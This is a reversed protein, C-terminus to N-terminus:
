TLAFALSIAAFMWAAVVLDFAVKLGAAALSSAVWGRGYVRRVAVALYVLGAVAMAVGLPRSGVAQEPLLRDLVMLLLFFASWHLAFVVHLGQDARRHLLRLLVAFLLVSGLLLPPLFGSAVNEFRERYVELSVGQAALRAIRESTIGAGLKVTNLSSVVQHTRTEFTIFPRYANVLFFVAAALLYLQAPETHRVRRGAMYENTLFGPRFLLDRLSRFAKGDISAADALVKRLYGAGARVHSDDQGCAHCFRGVLPTGCNACADAAAAPVAPSESTSTTM